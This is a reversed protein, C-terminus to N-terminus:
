RFLGRLRPRTLQREADQEAFDVAGVFKKGATFFETADAHQRRLFRHDIVVMVAKINQGGPGHTRVAAYHEGQADVFRGFGQPGHASGEFTRKPDAGHEIQRPFKEGEVQRRQDGGDEVHQQRHHVEFYEAAPRLVPDVEGKSPEGETEGHIRHQAGLPLIQEEGIEADHLLRFVDAEVEHQRQDDLHDPRQEAPGDATIQPRRLHGAENENGEAQQGPQREVQLDQGHPFDQKAENEGGGGDGHDPHGPNALALLRPDQHNATEGRHEGQHPVHADVTPIKIAGADGGESETQHDGGHRDAEALTEDADFGLEFAGAAALGRRGPGVAGFTFEQGVHAVFDAGREGADQASGIKQQPPWEVGFRAGVSADHPLRGPVQELDDVLHEVKRFDFGAM